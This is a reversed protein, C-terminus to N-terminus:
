SEEMLAQLSAGLATQLAKRARNLRSSITGMSLGLVSSIEEYSMEELDKLVIVSKLHPKLKSIAARV